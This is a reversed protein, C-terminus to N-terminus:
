KEQEIVIVIATVILTQKLCWREQWIWFYRCCGYEIAMDVILCLM